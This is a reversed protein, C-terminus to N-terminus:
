LYYLLFIDINSFNASRTFHPFMFLMIVCLFIRYYVLFIGQYRLIHMSVFLM